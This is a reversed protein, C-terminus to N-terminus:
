LSRPSLRLCHGCRIGEHSRPGESGDAKRPASPYRYSWQASVPYALLAVIVLIASMRMLRSEERGGM